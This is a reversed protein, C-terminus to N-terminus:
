RLSKRMAYNHLPVGNRSIEQREQVTFRARMFFRRAAESAHVSLRTMGRAEAARELSRYLASGTGIRAPHCYFCDIHGDHKLEIFGVPAGGDEAVWVTRGDALRALFVDAPLPRASWASLQAPTYGSAGGAHIAAHM